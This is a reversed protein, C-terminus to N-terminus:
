SQSTAPSLAQQLCALMADDGPAEAVFARLGAAEAEEAIRAHNVCIKVNRIWDDTGHNTMQL